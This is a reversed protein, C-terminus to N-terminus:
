RDSVTRVFEVGVVLFAGDPVLDNRMSGGRCAQQNRLDLPFERVEALESLQDSAWLAVTLQRPNAVIIALGAKTIPACSCIRERQGNSRVDPRSWEPPATACRRWRTRSASSDPALQPCIGKLSRGLKKIKAESPDNASFSRRFSCCHAKPTVDVTNTPLWGIWVNSISGLRWRGHVVSYYSSKEQDNNEMRSIRQVQQTICSPEPSERWILESQWRAKRPSPEHRELAFPVAPIVLQGSGRCARRARLTALEDLWSRPAPVPLAGCRGGTFDEAPQKRGLASKLEDELHSM